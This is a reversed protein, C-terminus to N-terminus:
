QEQSSQLVSVFGAKRILDQGQDTLLLQAYARGAQESKDGNAKIIVYLKHTLPYQQDLFAQTNTQNRQSPCDASTVYPSQYPAIWKPDDSISIPVPKISCQPLIEAASGFFIGGPSNALRRLAATLNQFYDLRDGYSKEQLVQKLFLNVIEDSDVFLSYPQIELDPGGVQQWNSIQGRYIKALQPLTLGKISLNPHVAVAIGDIAILKQQLDIGRDQARQIEEPRLPRDSQVLDLQDQLLLEIATTTNVEKEVPQIYSLQYERRESQIVSDVVLRISSWNSSGSYKFRGTPINDVQAFTSKGSQKSNLDSQAQDVPQLPQQLNRWM